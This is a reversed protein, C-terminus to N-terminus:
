KWNFKLQTNTSEQKHMHSSLIIELCCVAEFHITFSPPGVNSVDVPLSNCQKSLNAWTRQQQAQNKNLPITQSKQLSSWISVFLKHEVNLLYRKGGGIKLWYFDLSYSHSSQLMQFLRSESIRVNWVAPWSMMMDCYMRFTGVKLM